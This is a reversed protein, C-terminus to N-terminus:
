CWVMDKESLLLSPLSPVNYMRTCEEKHNNGLSHSNLANDVTYYLLLGYLPIALQYLKQPPIGKRDSVLASSM